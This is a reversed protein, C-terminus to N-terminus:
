TIIESPDRDSAFGNGIFRTKRDVIDSPDQDLACGNGIFGTKWTVIESPDWGSGDSFAKDMVGDTESPDWGSGDSFLRKSGVRIAM